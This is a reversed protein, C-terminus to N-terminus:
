ASEVKAFLDLEFQKKGAWATARPLREYKKVVLGLIETPTLYQMVDSGQGKLAMLAQWEYYWTASDVRKFPYVRVLKENAMGFGHSECDSPIRSFCGDLFEEACKIPRQFGLGVKGCSALEELVSWPEGQHFVPMPDLGADRM